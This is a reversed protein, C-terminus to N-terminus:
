VLGAENKMAGSRAEGGVLAERRMEESGGTWVRLQRRDGCLASRYEDVEITRGAGWLERTQSRQAAM